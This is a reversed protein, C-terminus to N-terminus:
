LHESKLRRFQETKSRRRCFYSSGATLFRWNSVGLVATVADARLGGLADTPMLSAGVVPVVLLVLFLEPLLRRARRRLFARLCVTGSARREALLLGTILYGSLAFFVDVGLFGGPLLPLGAHFALVM